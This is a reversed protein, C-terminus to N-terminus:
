STAIERARASDASVETLRKMLYSRSDRPSMASKALQRFTRRLNSVPLRDQTFRCGIPDRTYVLDPESGDPFSLLTFSGDMGAHFQRHSVVQITINDQESRRLLHTLQDRSLPADLVPQYILADLRVPHEDLLRCRHQLAQLEAGIRTTSPPYAATTLRTTLYDDTQLLAPLHLTQVDRIRSAEHEMSLYTEDNRRLGNWWHRAAAKQRIVEYEHYESVPVNYIDLLARLTLIDPLQGLEIRSVKQPRIGIQHGAEDQTMGNRNRLTTLARSLLRTHYGPPRNRAM